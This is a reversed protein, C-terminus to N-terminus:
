TDLMNLTVFCDFPQLVASFFRFFLLFLFFLFFLFFLLLLFFFFLGPLARTVQVSCRYICLRRGPLQM